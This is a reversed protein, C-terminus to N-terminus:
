PTGGGGTALRLDQVKTEGDALTLAISAAALEELLAPDTLEERGIDVVAAIRYAGSPLGEFSFTGDTGPRTTRVRRTAGWLAKDAPFVVVTFDPAPRQSEDQLTGRIEQTRNTFVFSAGTIADGPQLDFPVDVADQGKITASKLIWDAEPTRFSASVRYRGPIVGIIAFGGSSTFTTNNGSGLSVGISGDVPLLSLRARTFLDPPDTGDVEFSLQGSVTLGEQLSLTVGSLSQGDIDVDARAWLPTGGDPTVQASITYAGPTIGTYSFRGDPGVRRNMSTVSFMMVGGGDGGGGIQRPLMLLQVAETRVNAPTVVAGEITATRVFRVAIDVGQREEGVGLPIATAQSADLTSPYFMATYGLTVPPSVTDHDATTFPDAVAQEAARVESESMQRIDGLGSNRPTASVVYEGAPLGYLRYVGRDDAAEGLLAGPTSPVSSLRREGNVTRVVQVRVRAGPSPQGFEDTIRGTIVGGRAMRLQLDQNRLTATVTVPTGPRDYRRAGYATRVYGPKSAEITYRGIPLNPFVFHGAADTYATRTVGADPIARVQARRVPQPTEEDTVILGTIEAPGTPVVRTDRAQRQPTIAQAWPSMGSAALLAIILLTRGM